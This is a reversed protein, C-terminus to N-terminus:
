LCDEHFTEMRRAVSDIEFDRFRRGAAQGLSARSGRNSALHSLATALAEPRDCPVLAGESDNLVEKIPAIDSAVICSKLAMAELITGPSGERRSPAVLVDAACMLDAVDSRYGLFRVAAASVPLARALAHLEPTATGNRGAILLVAKEPLDALELANLVIDLGKAQEHRAAALMVFAEDCLGLRSRTAARREATPEGLKDRNRGRPVVAIRESPYRLARGTETAVVHSVAHLQCTLRATCIDIAQAVALKWPKIRPDAYHEPTYTVNALTSVVPIRLSAAALRGLVDARYLTTHVLDPRLARLERRLQPLTRVASGPLSIVRVGAAEFQEHLGEAGSLEFVTMDYGHQVWARALLLLSQEAGGSAVLSDIVYALRVDCGEMCGSVILPLQRQPGDHSPGSAEDAPAEALTQEGGTLVDHRQVAEVVVVRRLPLLRVKRLQRREASVRAGGVEVSSGQRLQQVSGVDDVVERPLGADTTRPSIAELSVDGRVDQSRLPQEFGGAGSRLEPQDQRRAARDVAIRGLVGAPLVTRDLRDAGVAHGLQRRLVETIGVGLVEGDLRDDHAVEGDVARALPRVHAQVAEDLGAKIVTLDNQEAVALLHTVEGVDLVHHRCRDSRPSDVKRRSAPEVDRTTRARGNSLQEGRDLGGETDLQPHPLFRRLGSVHSACTPGSLTKTRQAPCRRAVECLSHCRLHSPM